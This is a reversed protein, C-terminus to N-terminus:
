QLKERIRIATLPDVMAATAIHVAHAGRDLYARVDEATSAGGVGILKVKCNKKQILDHFTATQRLSEALTAIGCIGRCQGEFLNKGESGRVKTAVSNTMALGDAYPAVHRLLSEAEESTSVHGVKIIYPTQGIAERVTRAVVEAAGHEQYLQGDRTSVNPCSFNTEVTGAGSEVAWKACQAYDAALEDVGWGEQITGVVSVSLVKNKPLRKRTWEIDKRWIEPSKSPMGFSVAWSGKMTDIAPLVEEDGHLSDTEVPQLNPLDYCDRHVSRVTKYTLVDFGLSAYYLVWKGNLLPGAPIGLPSGVPVGMFDWNGVVVPLDLDVPEPVIEYNWDYTKSNDYRALESQTTTM